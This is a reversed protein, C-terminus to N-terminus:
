RRVQSSLTLWKCLILHVVFMCGIDTQKVGPNDEAYQCMRRRDDDTLTRRPTNGGTTTQRIQLSQSGTSVASGPTTTSATSPTPTSYNSQSTLMSPWQPPVILPHLPQLQQHPSYPPPRAMAYLPGPEIPMVGSSAYHYSNYEPMIPSTTPPANSPYGGMSMWQFDGHEAEPSQHHEPEMNLLCTAM